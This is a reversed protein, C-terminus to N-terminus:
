RAALRPLLDLPDLPYGAWLIEFHLHPGTANGTAGVSAIVQGREVRQGERVHLQSAHAYRTTVGGGHDLIVLQGYGRQWGSFLVQGAGAAFIPDGERGRLDIGNHHRTGRPGFASNVHGAHELPLPWIMGSLHDALTGSPSAQLGFCGTLSAAVLCLLGSRALVSRIL